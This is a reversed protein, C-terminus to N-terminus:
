KGHGLGSYANQAIENLDHLTAKRTQPKVLGRLVYDVAERVDNRTGVASGIIRHGQWICERPSFRATVGPSPVWVCVLTGFPGLAGIGTEYAEFSGAAVIVARAKLGGTMECITNGVDPESNFDVFFTAGLFRCYEGRDKGTDIAIMQYGMSRAYQICMAGVGGGAGIIAVWDGPSVYPTILKLAKFATVEACMIPVVDEDSVGDPIPNLNRAAVIMYEAFTGDFSAAPM